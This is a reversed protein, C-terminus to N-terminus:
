QGIVILPLYTHDHVWCGEEGALTVEKWVMTWAVIIEKSKGCDVCVQLFRGQDHAGEM